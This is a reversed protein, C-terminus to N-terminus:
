VKKGMGQTKLSWRKGSRGKGWEKEESERLVNWFQSGKFSGGVSHLTDKGEEKLSSSEKGM